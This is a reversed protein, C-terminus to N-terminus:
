ADVGALVNAAWLLRNAEDRDEDGLAEFASGTLALVTAERIAPATLKGLVEVDGCTLQRIALQAHFLIYDRTAADVDTPLQMLQDLVTPETTANTSM